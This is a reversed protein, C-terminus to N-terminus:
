RVVLLSYLKLDVVDNLQVWEIIRCEVGLVYFTSVTSADGKFGCRM